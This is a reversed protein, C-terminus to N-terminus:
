KISITGPSIRSFTISITKASISIETQSSFFALLGEKKRFYHEKKAM